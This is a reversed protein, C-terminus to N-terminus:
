DIDQVPTVYVTKNNIYIVFGPKAGQPKSVHKVRTYDVPVQASDKAKSHQAAIQAAQLIDNEQPEKGDTLLITHSGPINKTHFWIDTKSATKFTLKDNQRNNRGVLVTLGNETEFKLPPLAAASKQKAGRSSKIYGQQKLEDRIEDLEQQNQARSLSDFVTDIYILENRGKEMQQALVQQATKSKQYKKYYRQANQTSDLSPDLKIKVKEQEESYFNELEIETLGKKIRYANAQLLHAYNLLRNRDESDLLEQQQANLKRSTREQANMLIRLLDQSKARMREYQDREKYFTDLLNSFTDSRKVVAGTGYQEINLFTIDLGKGQPTLVVYPVGKKERITKITRDLFFSLRQYHEDTMSKTSFDRGKLTLYEIERCVVPSVGQVTNLIAKNLMEDREQSRIRDVIEASDAQLLNLKWQAPPMEYKINPLVYRKSSMSLDVRKLADIIVGFEDTLIVNSYKGMIEVTLILIVKDGLENTAEFDFFLIRELEVQRIATLKAGSLRKRLLMCFMPPTKPNEPPNNTIHVRPSNARASLLLKNAGSIGRMHFVLEEKNPQHIKDVRSNILKEELEKKIHSLFAGDLAM